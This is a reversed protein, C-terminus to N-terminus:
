EGDDEERRDYPEGYPDIRPPELDFLACLCVRGDGGWNPCFEHACDTPM